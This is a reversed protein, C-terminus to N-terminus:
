SQYSCAFMFVFLIVANPRCVGYNGIYPRAKTVETVDDTLTESLLKTLQEASSVLAQSTSPSTQSIIYLFLLQLTVINVRELQEWNDSNTDSLLNNIVSTADQQSIIDTKHQYM